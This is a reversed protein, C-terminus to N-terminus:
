KRRPSRRAAVPPPVTGEGTPTGGAEASVTSIVNGQSVIDDSASVLLIGNRMRTPALTDSITNNIIGIGRVARTNGILIGSRYSAILAPNLSSGPNVIENNSIEVGSGGASFRIALSPANLVINHTIRLDEVSNTNLSDWYGIGLGSHDVPESASASLDFEVTNGSILVAKAPLSSVPSLFIGSPNGLM